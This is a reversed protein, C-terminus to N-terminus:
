WPGPKQVTCYYLRHPCQVAAVQHESEAKVTTMCMDTPEYHRFRSWHAQVDRAYLMWLLQHWQGPLHLPRYRWCHQRPCECCTAHTRIWHKSSLDQVMVYVAGHDSLSRRVTDSNTVVQEPRWHVSSCRRLGSAFRRYSSHSITSCRNFASSEM